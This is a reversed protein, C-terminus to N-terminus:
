AEETTRHIQAHIEDLQALIQQRTGTYGMGKLVKLISVGRSVKMGKSELQLGKRLVMLRYLEINNGTIVNSTHM